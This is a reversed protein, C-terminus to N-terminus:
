EELPMHVTQGVRWIMSINKKKLILENNEADALVLTTEKNAIIRRIIIPNEDISFGYLGTLYPWKEKDMVPFFLHRSKDPYRPKMANDEIISMCAYTYDVGPMKLVSVSPWEPYQSGESPLEDKARIRRVGLHALYLPEGYFPVERYDEIRSLRKEILGSRYGNMLAFDLLSDPPAPIGDGLGTLDGFSIELVDALKHLVKNSPKGAGTEYLSISVRTVGILEALKAQSLNKRKRAVEIKSGVGTLDIM